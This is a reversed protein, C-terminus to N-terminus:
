AKELNFRQGLDTKLRLVQLKFKFSGYQSLVDWVREKIKNLHASAEGWTSNTEGEHSTTYELNEDYDARFIKVCSSLRIMSNDVRSVADKSDEPRAKLLFTM